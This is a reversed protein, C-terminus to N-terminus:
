STEQHNLPKGSLRVDEILGDKNISLSANQGEWGSHVAHNINADPKTRLTLGGLTTISWVPNGNVTNLKREVFVIRTIFSCNSLTM